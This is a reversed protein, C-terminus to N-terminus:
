NSDSAQSSPQYYEPEIIINSIVVGIPHNKGSPHRKDYDGGVYWTYTAGNDDDFITEQNGWGAYSVIKSESDAVWKKGDVFIECGTEKSYTFTFRHTVKSEFNIKNVNDNTRTYQGKKPGFEM